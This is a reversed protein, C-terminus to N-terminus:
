GTTQLGAAIGSITTFLVQRLHGRAMAEIQVHSLVDVYPNRRETIRGLTPRRELLRSQGTIALIRGVTLRHEDAIRAFVARDPEDALAAYRSAVELDARSLALQANDVLAALLPSSQYLRMAGEDGLAEAIAALASGLGFWGPIGHRSQNWSFVWPIARLDEFSLGGKRSTPRSALPLEGVAEIPTAARAYRGLMAPDDLLAQYAQRARDAARALVGETEAQPASPPQVSALLVAHVMQELDRHAIERRSYRAAITEGQETVRLRGGLAARPQAMIARSAPGGGRGVAGGRGHFVTLMVGDRGAVEALARQARDLAAASAFYGAQKGSDSYGIMVELEGRLAARVPRLGLLKWAIAGARDLDELQEFLPVPRLEGALLGAARLLFLVELVDSPASTFSIVYRECAEAGQDRRARGVVELTDLLERLEPSLHDRDRPAALDARDLLGALLAVRADEDLTLYGPRGGHALLEDVARAHVSSHQRVDLSALHFGFAEARRRTDRLRGRALAPHGSDDLTRECLRLDDLYARPTAYAGPLRDRTAVLRASIFRLKERWPEGRQPLLRAAIEPLRARDIELSAVLDTLGAPRTREGSVSLTRALAEADAAHRVLVRRRMEDLAARTVEATVHPNGDRDGGVWTGWRLFSGVPQEGYHRALAEELDRVIMPTVDFLTQDFVHLGARVEDIPTPRAARSERTAHLAEIAERLSGLRSARDQESARPDDLADLAAGVEALHDIVTRRRPETPHATLVPMVLLRGCLVKVDAAPVGARAMEAVAADISCLRPSKRRLARIREQQEAANILHFYHTFARAVRELALDDLASIRSALAAHGGDLEGRRLAIALTRLDEVLAYAEAGDQARVTEGLMRGLLRQDRILEPPDDV